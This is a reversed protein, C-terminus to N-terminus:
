SIKRVVPLIENQILGFRKIEEKSLKQSYFNAEADFGLAKLRDFYDM